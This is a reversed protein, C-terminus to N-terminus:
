HAYLNWQLMPSAAPPPLPATICRYLPWGSLDLDGCTNPINGGALLEKIAKRLGEQHEWLDSVNDNNGGFYEFLLCPVVAHKPHTSTLGCSHSFSVLFYGRQDKIKCLKSEAIPWWDNEEKFYLNHWFTHEKLNTWKWKFAASHLYVAIGLTDVILLKNHHYRCLRVARCCSREDMKGYDVSLTKLQHLIERFDM